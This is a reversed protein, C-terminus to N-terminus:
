SRDKGKDVDVVKSGAKQIPANKVIEPLTNASFYKKGPQENTGHEKSYQELSKLRYKKRGYEDLYSTFFNSSQKGIDLM